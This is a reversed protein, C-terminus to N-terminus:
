NSGCCNVTKLVDQKIEVGLHQMLSALLRKEQERQYDAKVTDYVDTYIEPGKKLKKGILFAYPYNKDEPVQGCKFALKDVCANKGIQFLGVEISANVTSDTAMLKHLSKEWQDAPLKKLYKKIRSAMKKNACRIVAGKFHPFQWAYREKNQKFYNELESSTAGHPSAEQHQKDWFSALLADEETELCMQVGQDNLVGETWRAFVDRKLAPHEAGLRDLYAVLYPRAEEYSICPKSDTLKVIHIGLPSYFPESFAGKSLSAIRDAFEQLLEVVPVWSGGEAQHSYSAFSAGKKLAAYISDIRNRAANEDQKTANQALRITIQEIKVWGSQSLREVSQRYLDQCVREEQEKDLMINKLLEGQMVKCYQRFAPLTDCGTSRMDASKLKQFLFDDFANRVSETRCNEAVYHKCYFEFEQKTFDKGGVRLLVEPSETAYLSGSLCFCSFLFLQKIFGTM